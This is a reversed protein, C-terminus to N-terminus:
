CKHVLVFRAHSIDSVRISCDGQSSVLLILTYYERVYCDCIVPSQEILFYKHNHNLRSQFKIHMCVCHLLETEQVVSIM